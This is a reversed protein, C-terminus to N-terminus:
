GGLRPCRRREIPRQASNLTSASHQTGTTSNAADHQDLRPDTRPTSPRHQPQHREALPTAPRQNTRQHPAARHLECFCVEAGTEAEIDQWRAMERGQDWTLTKWIAPNAACRLRCRPPPPSPTTATPGVALTQRSVREVLTAVASHNNAGIILDGEWHGAESRDEVAASREIPRFDGLTSPKRAHRGRQKRKRCRRPLCRWSGEPLGRSGSHDYCAAYITEACVSRVRSACIRACRTSWGMSLRQAVAAALGPDAALKPTKPRVARAQAAAQAAQAGYRGHRSNPRARPVCHVQAQRRRAMEEVGVGAAGDGRDLTARAVGVLSVLRM